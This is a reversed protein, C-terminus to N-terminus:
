QLASKMVHRQHLRQGGASILILLGIAFWFLGDRRYPWSMAAASTFLVHHDPAVTFGAARYLHILEGPLAGKRLIGTKSQVSPTADLRGRDPLQVWFRVPEAGGGSAIMPAVRWERKVFWFDETLVASRDYLIQGRMATAGEVPQSPPNRTDVQRILGRGEPLFLMHGLCFLSITFCVAASGLLWRFFRASSAARDVPKPTVKGRHQDLALPIVTLLATFVLFTLAPRYAGLLAFQWEASLAILGSYNAAQWLFILLVILSWALYIAPRVPWAKRVSEINM